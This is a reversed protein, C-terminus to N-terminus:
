RDHKWKQQAIDKKEFALCSILLKFRDRSMTAGYIHHGSPGWLDGVHHHGQGLIGRALILGILAKMEVMNTNPPHLFTHKDCHQLEPTLKNFFEQMNVNTCEIILSLLSEPMMLDFADRPTQINADKAKKTLGPM